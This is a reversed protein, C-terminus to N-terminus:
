RAPKQKYISFSEAALNKKPSRIRINSMKPPRIRIRIRIRKQRIRIGHRIRINHCIRIGFFFQRSLGRSRVATTVRAVVVLQTSVLELEGAASLTDEIVGAVLM